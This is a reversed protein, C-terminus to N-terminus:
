RDSISVAQGDNRSCLSSLVAEALTTPLSHVSGDGAVFNVVNTHASGFIPLDGPALELDSSQALGLAFGGLRMFTEPHDGNLIAGDGWGSAEGTHEQNVYKEGIFITNSLGDTVSAFTYRGMPGTVLRDGSVQNDTAFGSNFVGNVPRSFQAWEDDVLHETNGANGAYDGVSGVPEGNSELISISGNARNRSPCIMVEIPLAVTTPDQIRYRADLELQDVYNNKELFPMLATPWTMFGDAARSAPIRQRASEFSHVALGLQKLNNLCTTRRASERVAQVAPLLMGVLIGIIAIVVLLEVLTFGTRPPANKPRVNKM